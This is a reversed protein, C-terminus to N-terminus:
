SVNNFKPGRFQVYWKVNWDGVTKTSASADIGDIQWYIYTYVKCYNLDEIPNWVAQLVRKNFAAPKYYRKVKRTQFNM